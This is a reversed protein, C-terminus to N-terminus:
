KRLKYVKQSECWILHPTLKELQELRLEASVVSETALAYTTNEHDGKFVPVPYIIEDDKCIEELFRSIEENSTFMDQNDTM